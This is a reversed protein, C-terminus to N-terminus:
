FFISYMSSPSSYQQSFVSRQSGSGDDDDLLTIQFEKSTFPLPGATYLSKRGDYAPLRGGLYSARHLNVLEKIVARNVIRSTVEPTISVQELDSKLRTLKALCSLWM